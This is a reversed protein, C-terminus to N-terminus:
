FTRNGYRLRRLYANVADMDTQKDPNAEYAKKLVDQLQNARDIIMGKSLRIDAMQAPHGEFSPICEYTGLGGNKIARLFELNTESRWGTDPERWAKSRADMGALDTLIDQQKDIDVTMTGYRLLEIGLLLVRIYATAYKWPRDDKDELFKKRQNNSYGSFSNYADKSNWLYPFLERLEAGWQNEEVVPSVLTELVSPNSHIALQLFDRIEHATNDEKGEIWSTNDYSPNVSLIEDTPVIFVGRYDYDSDPRALGHARSGVLAKLIVRKDAKM